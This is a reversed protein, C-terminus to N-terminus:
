MLHTSGVINLIEKLHKYIENGVETLEVKLERGKRESRIINLRLLYRTILYAYSTEMHTKEAIKLVNSFQWNGLILIYQVIRESLFYSKSNLM